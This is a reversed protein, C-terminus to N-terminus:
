EPLEVSFELNCNPCKYHASYEGNGIEIADPHQWRGADDKPMPNDITCIKRDSM